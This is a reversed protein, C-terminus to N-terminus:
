PGTRYRRVMALSLGGSVDRAGDGGVTAAVRLRRALARRHPRRGGRQPGLRELEPM